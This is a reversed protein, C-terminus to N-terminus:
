EAVVSDVVAVVSDAAAEVSESAEVVEEAAEGVAADAKKANNCASAAFVLAVVAISM